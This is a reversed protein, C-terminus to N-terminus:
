VLSDIDLANYFFPCCLVSKFPSTKLMIATATIAIIPINCKTIQWIVNTQSQDNM